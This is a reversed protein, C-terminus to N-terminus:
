WITQLRVRLRYARPTEDAPLNTVATQETSFTIGTAHPAFVMGNTFDAREIDYVRNTRAQWQLALSGRGDAQIDATFFSTANTPQTGAIVEEADTQRDDDTDADDLDTGLGAEESDVLGDGDTDASAYYYIPQSTKESLTFYGRERADWAVTEGQPEITYPLAAFTNTLADPVSQGPQREYYLVSLYHKILIQRGSGAVSGGVPMAYSLTNSFQLTNVAGTSQPYPARYIRAPTDGKTVIILDGSWPDALLTEANHAGDPYNLTYTSVGALNTVLGSQNTSVVPEPVRYIEVSSRTATNDGIDGVYLYDVGDVPDTALAMDEWDVAAAGTLTYIGLTNGAADIAYLRPADGSDNHLWLVGPNRRSAALGSTETILNTQITGTIVGNSFAPTAAQVPGTAVLVLCAYLVSLRRRM